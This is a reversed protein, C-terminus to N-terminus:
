VGSYPLDSKGQKKKAGAEESKDWLEQRKMGTGETRGEWGTGVNKGWLEQGM